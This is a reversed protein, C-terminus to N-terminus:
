LNVRFTKATIEFEEQYGRKKARRLHREMFERLPLDDKLYMREHAKHWVATILKTFRKKTM